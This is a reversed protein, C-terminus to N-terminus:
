VSSRASAALPNKGFLVIPTGIKGFRRAILAATAPFLGGPLTGARWPDTSGLSVVAVAL